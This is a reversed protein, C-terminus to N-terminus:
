SRRARHTRRVLLGAPRVIGYCARDCGTMSPESREREPGCDAEPAEEVSVVGPQDILTLGKVSNCEVYFTRSDGLRRIARAVRCGDFDPTGHEIDVEVGTAPCPM